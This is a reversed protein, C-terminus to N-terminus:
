GHDPAEQGYPRAHDRAAAASTSTATSMLVVM